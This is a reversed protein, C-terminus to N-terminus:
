RLIVIPQVASYEGAILQVWYTGAAPFHKQTIPHRHTGAVLRQKSEYVVSGTVDVIRINTIQTKKLDFTLWATEGQLPNPSLSQLQFAPNDPAQLTSMGGEISITGPILEAQVVGTNDGFEIQTPDGTIDVLTSEGPDGILQFTITFIITSDELTEGLLIDNAIWLFTVDGASVEDPPTGLNDQNINDIGFNDVSQFQVVTPDYNLSFQANIMNTFGVVGLDVTITNGTEGSASTTYVELQATAMTSMGVLFSLLLFPNRILKGM